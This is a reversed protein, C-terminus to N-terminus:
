AEEGLVWEQRLERLTQPKVTRAKADKLASLLRNANRPSRLLYVIEILSTLEASNILREM